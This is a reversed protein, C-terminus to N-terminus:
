TTKWATMGANMADLGNRAPMDESKRPKAQTGAVIKLKM